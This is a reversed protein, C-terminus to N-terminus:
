ASGEKGWANMLDGRAEDACGQEDVADSSDNDLDLGIVVGVRGGV